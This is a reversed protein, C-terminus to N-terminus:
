TMTLPRVSFRVPRIRFGPSMTSGLRLLFPETLEVARQFRMAWRRMALLVKTRYAGDEGGRREGGRRGEEGKREEGGRKEEEGADELRGM